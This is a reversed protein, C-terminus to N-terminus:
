GRKWTRRASDEARSDLQEQSVSKISQNQQTAAPHNASRKLLSLTKRQQATAEHQLGRFEVLNGFASIFLLSDDCHEACDGSEGSVGANLSYAQTVCACNGAGTYCDKNSLVSRCM